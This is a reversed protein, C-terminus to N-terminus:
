MAIITVTNETSSISGSGQVLGCGQRTPVKLKRVEQCMFCELFIKYNKEPILSKELSRYSSKTRGFM